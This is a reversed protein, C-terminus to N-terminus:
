DSSPSRALYLSARLHNLKVSVAKELVVAELAAEDLATEEMGDVGNLDSGGLEEEAPPHIENLQISKRM